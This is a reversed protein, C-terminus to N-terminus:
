IFYKRAVGKLLAFLRPSLAATLAQLKRGWGYVSSTLHTLLHTRIYELLVNESYDDDKGSELLLWLHNVAEVCIEDCAARALELDLDGAIMEYTRFNELNRRSFSSHTVSEPHQDYHYTQKGPCFCVSQAYQLYRYAFDLDEASGVDNRFRLDHSRLLEVCYCKNWSFGGMRPPLFLSRRAAEATMTVTHGEAYGPYRRDGEDVWFGTCVLNAPYAALLELFTQVYHPEVWDDPDPFTIWEGRAAEIGTNRADSLGGNLKHIVRIMDPHAVAYRDCIAGSGDTSGDDILLIEFDPCTQVLLADLCRPLYLEKNYIPVVLTLM